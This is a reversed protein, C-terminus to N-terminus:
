RKSEGFRLPKSIDVIEQDALSFLILSGEATAAEAPLPLTTAVFSGLLIANTPLETRNTPQGTIWYAILDPKVFDKPAGFGVAFQGTSLDRWLRIKVPANDFADDREYGTATFTQASTTSLAPPLMSIEPVTRRAVIGAVFALPLLVGIVAFTRRHRQRLSLIM